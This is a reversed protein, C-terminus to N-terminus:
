KEGNAVYEYGCLTYAYTFEPDVQIARQFVKLAAEHEKQLSFCNGVACWAEPSGRGEAFEVVRQALYSLEM